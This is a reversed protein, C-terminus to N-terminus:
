LVAMRLPKVLVDDMGAAMCGSRTGLSLSATLAIIPTRHTSGEAARIRGTAQYGDLEPMQCDMLILDFPQRAHMAAADQGNAATHAECGLKEIMRATIQRNVPNDDAALVRSRSIAMTKKAPDDIHPM